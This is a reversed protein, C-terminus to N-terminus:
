TVKIPELGEGGGGATMDKFKPIWHKPFRYVDLILAHSFILFFLCADNFCLLFNYAPSSNTSVLIKLLTFKV